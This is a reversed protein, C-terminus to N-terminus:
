LNGGEVRQLIIVADGVDIHGNDNLDGIKFQRDDFDILEVIYKLILDADVHSVRGDGNLDGMVDDSVPGVMFLIAVALLVLSIRIM